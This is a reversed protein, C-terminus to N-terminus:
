GDCLGSRATPPRRWRVDEPARGRGARGRRPRRDGKATAGGTTFLFAEGDYVYWVPTINPTGDAGVTAFRGTHAGRTVFAHWEESPM